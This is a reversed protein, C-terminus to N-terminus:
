SSHGPRRQTASKRAASLSRKSRFICDQLFDRASYAGVTRNGVYWRSVDLRRDMLSEDVWRHYASELNDIAPCHEGVRVRSLALRISLQDRRSYRMVNDAWISNMRAVEPTNKRALIATWIPRQQLSHPASVRYHSLQERVTRPNDYGHELVAEFEEEVTARFSHLPAGFQAGEPLLLEFIKSPSVRLEVRNDIWLSEGYDLLAEHGRIKLARASRVSDLPFLPDVVITEWGPMKAHQNDSFCLYTIDDDPVTEKEIQREYDGILATFVVRKM